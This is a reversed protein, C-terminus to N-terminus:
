AADGYQAQAWRLARLVRWRSWVRGTSPNRAGAQSLRRQCEDITAGQRRWELIREVWLHFANDRVLFTEGGRTLFKMGLPPRGSVRLRRARRRKVSRRFEQVQFEHNVAKLANELKTRGAPDFADVGRWPVESSYFLVKEASLVLYVMVGRRGLVECARRMDATRRGLDALWVVIRDGRELDRFLTRGDPRDLACSDAPADHICWHDVGGGIARATAEIVGRKVELQADAVVYAIIRPRSM